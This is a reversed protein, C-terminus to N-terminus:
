SSTVSMVLRFSYYVSVGGYAFKFHFVGTGNDAYIGGRVLWPHTETVMNQYDNYWGSTESLGHSLCESGNCAVRVDNNTYKDYYKSDPMRAFGSSAVLDNYNGMVYEWASGNMDYIGYITGTTSAGTGNINADYTYQYGLSASSPSGSSCGTIFSISKNQYVEKNAGKFNENGLKGYRSQSLYAVVAWEDNRMAHSNMNESFGYRNGMASLKLGVQYINSVTIGRWSTVNPKIMPDLSTTNGGGNEVSPDSSSTEFKGVWIGSLEENGFTFADPTYWSDSELGESVVYKATGRDKTTKDVFKVDIEGPLAVTPTSDLYDGQKGYYNTGDESGISYSYRPIWVWMTEIDAMDIKTGVEAELYKDRTNSSVTVANAWIGTRYNYWGNEVDTKVWNYGDHKVAIMNADLEPANPKLREQFVEVRLKGSFVQGSYNGDVDSTICLNLSYENTGKGEITGFDLIRKPSKGISTLMSPGSNLGIKNLNYKLYKDDIRTDTDGITNDDLYIIYDVAKSGNNILKFTSSDLSLGESDSLGIANDLKIGESTENLVLELEGVKVIGETGSLQTKFFAYSLVLLLILIILISIVIIIVKKNKM